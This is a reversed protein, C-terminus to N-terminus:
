TMSDILPLVTNLEWISEGSDPLVSMKHKFLTLFKMVMGNMTYAYEIGGM